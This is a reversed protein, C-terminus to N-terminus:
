SVERVQARACTFGRTTGAAFWAVFVMRQMRAWSPHSTRADNAPGVCHATSAGCRLGPTARRTPASARNSRSGQEDPTRDAGVLRGLVECCCADLESELERWARQVGPESRRLLELAGIEAAGAPYGLSREAFAALSRMEM